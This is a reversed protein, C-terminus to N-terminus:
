RGRPLDRGRWGEALAVVLRDPPPAGVEARIEGAPLRRLQERLFALSRQVELWRVYARAFCTAREALHLGPHPRLPLHRLPLGPARRARARLGPGGRRGPGAAAARRPRSRARGRSAPWCRRRTGSCLEVAGARRRSSRTWGSAAARRGADRSSTSARRRRARGPRPRLPQRLAAGDHEPRRRPDPRLLSLTPLFGVDGALAGLDGIHNALRELELPSAACRRARAPVRRGPSRRSPGATPPPTASRRTAPWRRSTTCAHAPGARRGAGARRRPAPLGALDGPSLRDRRPVPLPLPGARHRRRAGPRRRGRPGGRGGHPLLRHGRDRGGAAGVGLAPLPDAQAVSARGPRRGVARRDRARVLAGAPLRPTLSPYAEAVPCALLRLVGEDADALVALLRM